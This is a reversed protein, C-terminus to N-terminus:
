DRLRLCVVHCRGGVVSPSVLRAIPGNPRGSTRFVIRRPALDVTREPSTGLNLGQTQRGGISVTDAVTILKDM